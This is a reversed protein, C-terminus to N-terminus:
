AKGHDGKPGASRCTVVIKITVASSCLCSIGRADLSDCPKGTFRKSLTVASVCLSRRESIIPLTCQARANYRAARRAVFYITACSRAPAACHRVEILVSFNEDAFALLGFIQGQVIAVPV